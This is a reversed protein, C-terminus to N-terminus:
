KGVKEKINKLLYQFDKIKFIYSFCAFIIFAVTIILVLHLYKNLENLFSEIITLLIISVVFLVLMKILEIVTYKVKGKEFNTRKFLLIGMLVTQYLMSITFGLAVGGHQLYRALFISLVINIAVATTSSLMVIKSKEMALFCRVFYERLAVFILGITYFFLSYTTRETDTENFAGRQFAIEVLTSGSVLMVLIIPISVYIIMRIGNLVLTSFKNNNEKIAHVISPYLVTIISM